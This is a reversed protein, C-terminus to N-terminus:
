RLYNGRKLPLLCPKQTVLKPPHLYLCACIFVRVDPTRVRMSLSVNAIWPSICVESIVLKGSGAAFTINGKNNDNQEKMVLYLKPHRNVFELNTSVENEAVRPGWGKRTFEYMNELDTNLLM